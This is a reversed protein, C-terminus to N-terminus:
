PMWFRCAASADIKGVRMAAEATPAAPIILLKYQSLYPLKNKPWRFDFGWYNPNAVYTASSSDVYDTLMFPGSGIANHWNGLAPNAPVPILRSLM